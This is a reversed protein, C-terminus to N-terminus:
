RRCGAAVKVAQIVRRTDAGYRVMVVGGVTEGEGNLEAIGRRMESGLQIDRGGRRTEGTHREAGVGVVVKRLDTWDPSTATFASCSNRKRWRWRVRGRGRWQQARVAM